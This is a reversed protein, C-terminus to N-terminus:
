LLKFLNQTIFVEVFAAFFIIPLLFRLSFSVSKIIETKLFQFEKKRLSDWFKNGLHLGVAGGIILLPIELIGHPSIGIWFSLWGTTEEITKAVLGLLFGNLTLFLIPVFGFFIGLIAVIIIKLGNNLFILFLLEYVSFDTLIKALEEM